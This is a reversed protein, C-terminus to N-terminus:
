FIRLALGCNYPHAMKPGLNAWKDQVVNKQYLGNNNSEDVQQGNENTCFKLFIIVASGSNHPHMMKPDLITWKDM